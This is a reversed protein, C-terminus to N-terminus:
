KFWLWQNYIRTSVYYKILKLNDLLPLKSCFIRIFYLLFPSSFMTSCFNIFLYSTSYFWLVKTRLSIYIKTSWILWVSIVWQYVFNCCFVTTYRLYSSLFCDKERCKESPCFSNNLVRKLYFFYKYILYPGCPGCFSLKRFVSLIWFEGGIGPM